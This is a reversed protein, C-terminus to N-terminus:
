IETIRIIGYPRGTIEIIDVEGAAAFSQSEILNLQIVDTVSFARNALATQLFKQDDLIVTITDSVSKADSKDLATNADTVVPTVTDSVGVLVSIASAETVVPTITDSGVKSTSGTKSLFQVVDAVRPIITDSGARAQGPVGRSETVVPLLVETVDIDVESFPGETVYVRISDSVVFDSVITETKGGFSGYVQTPTGGVSLRTFDTTYTRAAATVVRAFTGYTKASTGGTGLRTFNGSYTRASGGATHDYPGGPLGPTGALGLVTIAATLVPM